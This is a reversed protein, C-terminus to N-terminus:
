RCAGSAASAHNEAGALLMNLAHCIRLTQAALSPYRSNEIALITNQTGLSCPDGM